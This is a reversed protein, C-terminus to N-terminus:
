GAEQMLQVRGYDENSHEYQRQRHTYNLRLHGVSIPELLDPLIGRPLHGEARSVACLLQHSVAESALLLRNSHM